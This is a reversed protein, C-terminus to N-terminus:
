GWEQSIRHLDATLQQNSIGSVRVSQAAEAPNNVRIQAQELAHQTTRIRNQKQLANLSDLSSHQGTTLATQTKDQLHHYANSLNNFSETRTFATSAPQGHICNGM